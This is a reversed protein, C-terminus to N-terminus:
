EERGQATESSLPNTICLPVLLAYRHKSHRTRRCKHIEQTLSQGNITVVSIKAQQKSLNLFTAMYAILM